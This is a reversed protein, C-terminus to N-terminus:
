LSKDPALRILEDADRPVFILNTPVGVNNPELAEAAHLKVQYPAAVTFGGEGYWHKIM